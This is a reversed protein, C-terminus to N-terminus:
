PLKEIDAKHATALLLVGAELKSKASVISGFAEPSRDVIAMSYKRLLNDLMKLTAAAIGLAYRDEENVLPRTPKEEALASDIRSALAYLFV